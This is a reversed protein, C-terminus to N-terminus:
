NLVTIHTIYINIGYQKKENSVWMSGLEIDLNCRKGKLQNYGLDGILKAHKVKAGYRLYLRLQYKKPQNTKAETIKNTSTSIDNDNDNDSNDSDDSGSDTDKKARKNNNQKEKKVVTVDKMFSFFHKDSLSYKNKGVDTDKLDDFTRVLRNLTVLLNYNINTTDDIVVNVINNKNYEESGFPLYGGFIKYKMPEFTSPAKGKKLIAYHGSKKNLKLIFRIDNNPNNQTDQPNQTDQNDQDNQM